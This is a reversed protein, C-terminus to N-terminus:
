YHPPLQLTTEPGQLVAAVHMAIHSLLSTLPNTTLLYALSSIGVGFVPGAVAPGRFEPYGLHYTATVFLSAILALVGVGIRGPWGATWGLLSFARWTALVPMVSLLLADLTGYVVGLWLLDFVLKVGQSRQSAPQSLVNSVLFAGALVAGALGWVWHRGLEDGLDIGSWRFYAYLFGGALILYPVLFWSRPLRLWGALVATALFGIVGAGLVWILHLWWKIDM